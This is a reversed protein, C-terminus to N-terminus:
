IKRRKQFFDQFIKQAIRYKEDGPTKNLDIRIVNYEDSSYLKDQQNKNIIDYPPAIVNSINKIIEQNYRLAKFSKIEAM